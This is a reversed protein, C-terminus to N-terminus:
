KRSLVPLCDDGAYKSLPYQNAGDIDMVYIESGFEPVRNSTFLIFRGDSTIEPTENRTGSYTLRIQNSGDSNMIYIEPQGNDNIESQYVIKKGDPTWKPYYNGFPPFGTDWSPLSATTLQRIDSGNAGSVFIQPGGVGGVFAIRGGDPSWEPSSGAAILHKNTGDINMLYLNPAADTQQCYAIKNGPSFKPSYNNGSQTLTTKNGTNFDFLVLDKEDTSTNRNKSYIVKSDDSSWDAFGCYRSASDILRLDSGDINVSYLRSYQSANRTVFLV